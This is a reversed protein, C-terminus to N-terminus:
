TPRTSVEYKGTPIRFAFLYLVFCVFLCIFLCVFYFVLVFSFMGTPIRYELERDDAPSPVVGLWAQACVVM